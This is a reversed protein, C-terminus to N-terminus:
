KEDVDEEAEPGFVRDGSPTKIWLKGQLYRFNTIDRSRFDSVKYDDNLPNMEGPSDKTGERFHPNIKFFGLRFKREEEDGTRDGVGIFFGDPHLQLYLIQEDKLIVQPDSRNPRLLVLDSLTKEGKVPSIFLAHGYPSWYRLLASDTKWQSLYDSTLVPDPKGWSSVWMPQPGDPGPLLDVKWRSYPSERRALFKEVFNSTLEAGVTSFTVLDRYYKFLFAFDSQGRATAEEKLEEAAEFSRNFGPETLTIRNPAAHFELILRANIKRLEYQPLMGMRHSPIGKVAEPHAMKLREWVSRKIAFVVRCQGVSACPRFVNSLNQMKTMENSEGSNPVDQFVLLARKNITSFAIDNLAARFNLAWDQRTRLYDFQGRTFLLGYDLNQLASPPDNLTHTDLAGLLGTVADRPVDGDEFLLAIWTNTNGGLTQILKERTEPLNWFTNEQGVRTRNLLDPPFGLLELRHLDDVTASEGQTSPIPTLRGESSISYLSKAAGRVRHTDRVLLKGQSFEVRFETSLPIRRWDAMDPKFSARKGTRTWILPRHRLQFSKAEDGGEGAFVGSESVSFPWTLGKDVHDVELTLTNLVYLNAWEGSRLTGEAGQRPASHDDWGAFIVSRKSENYAVLPRERRDGWPTDETRTAVTFRTHAWEKSDYDILTFDTFSKAKEYVLNVSWDKPFVVAAANAIPLLFEVNAAFFNREQQQVKNVEYIEYLMWRPGNPAQLWLQKAVHGDRRLSSVWRAIWRYEDFEVAQPVFRRLHRNTWRSEGYIFRLLVDAALYGAHFPLDSPTARAVDLRTSAEEPHTFYLGSPLQESDLKFHRRLQSALQESLPFFARMPPVDSPAAALPACLITLLALSVSLVEVKRCISM